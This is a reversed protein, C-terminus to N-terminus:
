EGPHYERTIHKELDARYFYVDRLAGGAYRAAQDNFHPSKPDGSEGGATVARARVTKGFEVAAVFSNGNTGYMKKTGPYTRAEFAALSGWLGSTFPVPISAASDNFPQKIAGSIRQFRNVEGWPVQWKGFRAALTDSAAALAELRQKPTRLQRSIQIDSWRGAGFDTGSMHMLQNAWYVAVTTPVSEASWRHDWAQLMEIQEKVKVKLASAAPEALYAELLPPLLEDFATLHTDYALTVLGDLTFTTHNSLLEMAHIGRANEGFQDMYKPYDKAKPSNAGATSWPWNNSNQIWGNAPDKVDPLEAVSHVGNWDAAPNSGDVPKTYDFSPSRKPVFDTQLYAINGADDAYITNNSSNAHLDMFNVFAAYNVAKTRMFSETLAEVPRQMVSVAIWKGGAERVIPGHKTRYITFERQAVSGDAARYKITVPTSVVPREETGYKYFLGSPKRIITEAFEDVADASTSTHMWGLHENFGQYVFFQGWTVAGYADLGEDSQMQVEARYFFSTHPNILLLAHGSDTLAPAIAIGNSGGLERPVATPARLALAKTSYFKGLEALSVDEIDWGISGESFPLVMWPEFHAIVKPKVGPHTALYYNLGDAWATMLTKLQAPSSAFLAKMSDPDVVLRMRLDKLIESEGDAEATRGLANLYNMEVRNFDDEAQAYILGFVADADTKGHIHPIGWDDRAITVNAAQARWAALQPTEAARPACAALSLGLACTLYRKM